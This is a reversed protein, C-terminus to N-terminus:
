RFTICTLLHLINKRRIFFEFCPSPQPNSQRFRFLFQAKRNRIVLNRLQLLMCLIDIIIHSFCPFFLYPMINHAVNICVAHLARLCFSNNMKACGGTINPIVCINNYHGFCQLQYATLKQIHNKLQRIKCILIFSKRRKSKGM